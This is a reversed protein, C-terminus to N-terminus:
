RRSIARGLDSHAFSWQAMEADEQELQARAVLEDNENYSHLVVSGVTQDQFVRAGSIFIFRRAREPLDDWTLLLTLQVKVKESSPFASSTQTKRDYLKTNRQIFDRDWNQELVRCALTNTPLQFIGSGDPSLERDELNFWWGRQQVARHAEGLKTYAQTADLNTAAPPLSAISKQGITALLVNVAELETTPTTPLAM